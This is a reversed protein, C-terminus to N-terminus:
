LLPFASAYSEIIEQENLHGWHALTEDRRLTALGLAEMSSDM